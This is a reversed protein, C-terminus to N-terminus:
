AVGVGAAGRVREVTATTSRESLYTTVEFRGGWSEVLEIEPIQRGRYDGGKCYVDPRILGLLRLPADEAFGVVHDVVGIGSLVAARDDFPNVPRGRGKLRRVSEDDNLGVILVDAMRAAEALSAIHGAHIVDFCGNTFAVSRGAARHRRVVELVDEDDTLVDPSESRLDSPSCVATGPRSVVVASARRALDAAQVLSAGAALGLALTATFTDGAGCPDSGGRSAPLHAVGGAGDVVVVGDVDATVAAASAGTATLIETARARVWGVRDEIEVPDSGLLRMVEGVNSTVADPSLSRLRSPDKGDVVILAPRHRDLLRIVEETIVGYGYDSVVMVDSWATAQAMRDALLAVAEPDCNGVTGRDVRAMIRGDGVLREKSLTTRDPRLVLGAVDIGRGAALARLDRGPPDEGVVSLLRTRAGLATLNAAVNAAGGLTQQEDTADLVPFPGDPCLRTVRGHVYVDLMAEGAVVATIEGFRDLIDDDTTRLSGAAM